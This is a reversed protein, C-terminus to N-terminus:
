RPNAEKVHDQVADSGFLHHAIRVAVTPGMGGQEVVVAMALRPSESPFYGMFWAHTAHPGDKWEASGTKGAVGPNSNGSNLRAKQAWGYTVSAHMMQQLDSLTRDSLGTSFFTEPQVKEIWAGNSKWGAVLYPHMLNGDNAIGAAVLAMLLPTTQLQGQGIATRALNSDTMALFRLHTEEGRTNDLTSMVAGLGPIDIPQEFGFRHAMSVLNPAGVELGMEAFAVNSSWAFAEELNFQWLHAHNDDNIPPGDPLALQNWLSFHEVGDPPRPGKSGTRYDFDRSKLSHLGAELAAAATIPKFTSGPPYRGDVVRNLYRRAFGGRRDTAEAAAWVAPDTFESPSFTPRSEIALIEGTTVDLLVVAGRQSGVDSLGAERVGRDFAEHVARQIEADITTVLTPCGRLPSRECGMQSAHGTLGMLEDRYAFDLRALTHGLSKALQPGQYKRDSVFSETKALVGGDRDVIPGPVVRYDPTDWQNVSYLEDSHGDPLKEFISAPTLVHGALQLCGVSVLPLAFAMPFGGGRILWRAPASFRQGRPPPKDGRLRYGGRTTAVMILAVATLNAILSTGGRSIFPFGLGTFPLVGSVGGLSVIAQLGIMSSLGAVLLGGTPEAQGRACEMGRTVMLAIFIVILAIGAFGLAEGLAALTVDETVGPLAEPMGLGLGVGTLGGAHLAYLSRQLQFSDATPVRLEAGAIGSTSSAGTVVRGVDNGSRLGAVMSELRSISENIRTRVSSRQGAKVPKSDLDYGGLSAWLNEAEALLLEEVSDESPVIPHAGQSSPMPRGELRWRLEEQVKEVDREIASLLARGHEEDRTSVLLLPSQDRRSAVIRDLTRATSNDLEAREYSGMPDVWMEVRLRVSQPVVVGLSFVAAPAVLIVVTTGGILWYRWRRGLAATAMLVVITLLAIGAGSDLWATTAISVAAVLLSLWVWRDFEMRLLARGFALAVLVVIGLKIIEYTTVEQGGIMLFAPVNRGATTFVSATTTTLVASGVGLLLWKGELLTPLRILSSAFLLVPVLLLSLDAILLQRRLQNYLEIRHVGDASAKSPYTGVLAEFRGASENYKKLWRGDLVTALSRGAANTEYVLENPISGLEEVMSAKDESSLSPDELVSERYERMAPLAVTSVYANADRVEWVYINILGLGMLFAALPLLLQDANSKQLRLLLHAVYLGAAFVASFLAWRLDAILIRDTWGFNM